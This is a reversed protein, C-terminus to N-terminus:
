HRGLTQCNSRLCVDQRRPGGDAWLSCATRATQMFKLGIVGLCVRVGGFLTGLTVSVYRVVFAPDCCWHLLDRPEPIRLEPLTDM